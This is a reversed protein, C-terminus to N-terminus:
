TRYLDRWRYRIGLATGRGRPAARFARSEREIELAFSARGRPGVHEDVEAGAAASHLEDTVQVARWFATAVFTTRWWARWRKLTRVSVGLLEHLRQARASTIGGQMATVLVVVAGLYVHRGLYRVSPPTM